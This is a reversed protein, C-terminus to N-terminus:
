SKQQHFLPADNDLLRVLRDRASPKVEVLEFRIVYLEGGSDRWTEFAERTCQGWMQRRASRSLAQPHEKLWAFGEAEYDGDPMNALPELPVPEILRGVGIPRGGFRMARDVACFPQGVRWRAAYDGRWDRRTVVKAGAVFAPWTWGFSLHRM